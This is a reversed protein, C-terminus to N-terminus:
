SLYSSLYTHMSNALIYLRVYLTYSYNAIDFHNYFANFKFTNTIVYMAIYIYTALLSCAHVYKTSNQSAALRLVLLLIIAKCSTMMLYSNQNHGVATNYM